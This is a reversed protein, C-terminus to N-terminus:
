RKSILCALLKAMMKPIANEGSAYRLSQRVTIGLTEATAKSAVTLGLKHLARLYQEPSMEDPIYRAM